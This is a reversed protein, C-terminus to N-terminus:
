PSTTPDSLQVHEQCKLYTSSFQFLRHKSKLPDTYSVVALDCTLTFDRSVDNIYVYSRQMLSQIEYAAEGYSSEVGM